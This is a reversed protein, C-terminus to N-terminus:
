YRPSVEHSTAVAPRTIESNITQVRRWYDLNNMWGIILATVVVSFIAIIVGYYKPM